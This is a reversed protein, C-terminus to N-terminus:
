AYAVWGRFTLAAYFLSVDGFGAERLLAEDEEPSLVPLRERMAAAAGEMREAPLGSGVAYAAYRALWTDGEPPQVPFSHHAVVLPAGPALRRRLERLTALREQGPIFHLTLLSVAADFPAEPADGIYGEHLRIRDAFPETTAAALRLMEASPDVGDFTWGPHAAALHELELGGGAGLVLVRGDAPTREALLLETMRHLDAFGPVQRPPGDRYRAVADPDSFHNM